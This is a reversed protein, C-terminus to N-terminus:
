LLMDGNCGLVYELFNDLRQAIYNKTPVYTGYSDLQFAWGQNYPLCKTM